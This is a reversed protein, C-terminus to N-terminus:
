ALTIEDQEIKVSLLSYEKIPYERDRVNNLITHFLGMYKHHEAIEASQEGDTGVLVKLIINEGVADIIEPVQANM